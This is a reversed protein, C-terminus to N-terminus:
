KPPLIKTNGQAISYMLGLVFSQTVVYIIDDGAVSNDNPDLIEHEIQYTNRKLTAIFHEWTMEKNNM